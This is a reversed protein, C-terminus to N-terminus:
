LIGTVTVTVDTRAGAPLVTGAAERVAQSVARTLTVAHHGRHLAIRLDVHAHWKGGGALEQLQVSPLARNTGDNRGLTAGRLTAALDPRLWAVGPVDLAAEAAAEALQQRLERSRQNTM